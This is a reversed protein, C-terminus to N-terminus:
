SSAARESARTFPGLDRAGRGTGLRADRATRQCPVLSETPVCKEAITKRVENQGITIIWSADGPATAPAGRVVVNELITGHTHAADDFVGVIECRGERAMTAIVECAHGGGGVLAYRPVDVESEPADARASGLEDGAKRAIVDQQLRFREASIEALTATLEEQAKKRPNTM